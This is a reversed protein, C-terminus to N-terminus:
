PSVLQSALFKSYAPPISLSLEKTTMWNIGMARSWTELDSPPMGAFAGGAGHAHGYVGTIPRSHDCPPVLILRQPSIEFWRHRRVELNFMSGCLVVDPRMPAGPVNEIIWPVTTTKLRERVPPLLDPHRGDKAVLGGRIYAQCPPSAWIFDFGRLDVTMADAQIFEYPYNPQPNIDVGTVDFGADALGRSAGGAGCFLDMVRMTDERSEQM